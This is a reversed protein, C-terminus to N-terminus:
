KFASIEEYYHVFLHTVFTKLASDGEAKASIGRFGLTCLNDVQDCSDRNRGKTDPNESLAPVRGPFLTFVPVAVKSSLSSRVALEARWDWAAELRMESWNRRDLLASKVLRM